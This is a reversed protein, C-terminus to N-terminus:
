RHKATIKINVKGTVPTVKIEVEEGKKNELYITGSILPAGSYSFTIENREINTKMIKIGKSLEKKKIIKPGTNSYKSITYSNKSPDIQVTYLNSEVIARNRAYEIDNKFEKLEKREKFDWLATGRFIPIMLLISIISIVILIEILTFGKLNKVYYELVEM